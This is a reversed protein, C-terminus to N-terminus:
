REDLRDLILEDVAIDFKRAFFKDSRLLSDLHDIRLVDPHGSRYNSWSIHHLNRLEVNLLPDNCVITATAAEDAIVVRRFYSSYSPHDRLYRIITEAARANLTFWPSGQWCRFSASFPTERARTGIRYPLLEPFKYIYAFPQARNFADATFRAARRLRRQAADPLMGQLGLSPFQRYHYLYRHEKEARLTPDEIQDIPEAEFFADASTSSLMAELNGLPKIPYDQGSLTIVWDWQLETLMWALTRWHAELLSYAGWDIPHDSTRIVVGGIEDLLARDLTASFRDHHVVIPSDPQQRRLSKLLRCLQEAPRHNMVLYAVRM